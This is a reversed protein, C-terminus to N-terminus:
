RLWKETWMLFSVIRWTKEMNYPKNRERYYRFRKIEARVAEPRLLGTSKLLKEDTYRDLISDLSKKFWTFIPISFGQKPRNFIESPLYKTLINRLIVKGTQNRFKCELPLKVALEVVRHDLFPERAEVGVYMTARDVKTLLDDPLYFRTDWHMMKEVFNGPLDEMLPLPVSKNNVIQQIFGHAQNAIAAEYFRIDDKTTLLEELRSLRHGLNLLKLQARFPYPFAAALLGNMVAKLPYPIFGLLSHWRRITFYHPYGGFLEDGGDASLVVKVGQKRALQAVLTSPIGSTDAFPEDYVEYFQEFLAEADEKYCTFEVLETGTLQAVQQAYRREDYQKVDFGITFTKIRRGANKSLVATLLSSDVGGSLFVGVPVDAVLRYSFASILLQELQEEIDRENSFSIKNEPITLQWWRHIETRGNHFKLYHGPLLKKIENFITQEGPVYGFRFYQHLAEHNISVPINLQRLMKVESAFAFGRTDSYYLPKVGLRDRVLLLEATQKNYLAFAFMGIFKQLADVGWCHLAKILVETDSTTQFRYGIKKLESAVEAYNYFEGNYLLVLNEFHFPQRASESLDIVSLRWHIFSFKEDQFYGTYDPGRHHLVPQYAPLAQNSLSREFGAIGCM